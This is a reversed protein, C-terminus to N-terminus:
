RDNSAQKISAQHEAQQQITGKHELQQKIGVQHDTDNPKVQADKKEVEQQQQEEKAKTISICTSLTRPDTPDSLGNQHSLFQQEDVSDMWSSFDMCSIIAAFVLLLLLYFRTIM